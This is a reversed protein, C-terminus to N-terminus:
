EAIEQSLELYDHFELQNGKEDTGTIMVGIGLMQQLPMGGNAVRQGRAPITNDGGWWTKLDESNYKLIDARTETYFFTLSYEEVSFEIGNREKLYFSYFWGVGSNFKDSRIAKAPNESAQIVVQAQGSVPDNPQKYWEIPNVEVSYPTDRLRAYTKVPDQQQVVNASPPLMFQVLLTVIIGGLFTGVYGWNWKSRLVPANKKEISGPLTSEPSPTELPEEPLTDEGLIFDYQLVQSLRKLSEIDPQTRGNEWHSIMPRSVNMAEALREQTMGRAKRAATLQEAFSQLHIM